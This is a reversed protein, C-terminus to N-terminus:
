ENIRKHYNIIHHAAIRQDIGFERCLAAFALRFRERDGQSLSLMATRAESGKRASASAALSVERPPRKLRGSAYLRQLKQETTM